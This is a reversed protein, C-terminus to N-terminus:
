SKIAKYGIDQRYQAGEFHISKVLDYARHQAKKVSDGL